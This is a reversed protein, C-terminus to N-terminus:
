GRLNRHDARRGRPPRGLQRGIENRCHGTNVESRSNILGFDRSDEFCMAPVSTGCGKLLCRARWPGLWLDSISRPQTLGFVSDLDALMERTKSQTRIAAGCHQREHAVTRSTTARSCTPSITVAPHPDSMQSFIYFIGRDNARRSRTSQGELTPLTLDTPEPRPVLM